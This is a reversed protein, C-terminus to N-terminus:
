ALQNFYSAAMLSKVNGHECVMLINATPQTEEQPRLVWVAAGDNESARVAIVLRDIERLFLGTRSGHSIALQAIRTFSKSDTSYTDVTGDGCIVYVHSRKSDVFIDDADGCADIGTLRSGTGLDFAELRAPHRFVALLRHNPIDIALPYNARLAATPWIAVSVNTDRSVAQIIGADPVNVYVRPGTPELQFSEPHGKLPIDAIRKRSVADIVALAGSGHGVYVRRTAPDVRVNDADAGLEIQGIPAFDVGRFIRVSGDGGNAVYV